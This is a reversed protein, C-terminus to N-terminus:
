MVLAAPVHMSSIHWRKLLQAIIIRYARAVRSLDETLRLWELRYDYKNKYFHKGLFVRIQARLQASSVLVFLLVVALSIFMVQGFKGWSGGFERIYYGAGAMALLYFGGVFIATTNLVIERSVFVNLSWNKNRASSIALLPVAVLHVIGRADWLGQDISRFLLADSYLYFDFAFIGGAGLFLYKTAWRFHPSTNRFLQELLALGILAILVNGTIGLVFQGSLSLIVALLENILFLSAFGVSILM